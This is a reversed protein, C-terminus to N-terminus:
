LGYLTTVAGSIPWVTASAGPNSIDFRILNAGNNALAYATQAEVRVALLASAAITLAVLLLNRLSM